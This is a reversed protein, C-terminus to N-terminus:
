MKRSGNKKSFVISTMQKKKLGIKSDNRKLMAPPIGMNQVRKLMIDKSSHSFANKNKHKHKHNHHHHRTNNNNNNNNHHNRQFLHFKPENSDCNSNCDFNSQLMMCRSIVMRTRSFRECAEEVQDPNIKIVFM